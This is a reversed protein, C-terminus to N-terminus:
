ANAHHCKVVHLDHLRSARRHIGVVRRHREAYDTKEEVDAAAVQHRETVPASQGDAGTDGRAQRHNRQRRVVIQGGRAPHRRPLVLPQPLDQRDGDDDGEVHAVRHAVQQDRPHEGAFHVRGFNSSQEAADGDAKRVRKEEGGDLRERVQDLIETEMAREPEVAAGHRDSGYSQIYKQWLGPASRQKFDLTAELSSCNNSLREFARKKFTLLLPIIINLSTHLGVFIPEM